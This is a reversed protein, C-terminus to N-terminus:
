NFYRKLKYRSTISFKSFISKLYFKVTNQSIYLQEGIEKNTLNKAALKAVEMERDTLQPIKNLLNSTRIKEIGNKYYNYLELIDKIENKYLEQQEIEKLISLIYEGNEVFPMYLRDPTAIQLASKISEIATKKESLKLNAVAMHIYTYVNSYINQFDSAVELFQESVGLLKLYEGNLLLTKGYIINAYSVTIFDFGDKEVNGGSSIWKPILEMQGINSFIFGECLDVARNFDYLKRCEKIMKLMANFKQFNGDIIAIRLMIFRACLYISYQKKSESMYIAKHCLIEAGRFDGRNLLIEAKMVAEAGYKHNNTLKYYYSICENMRELEEDLKGSERHFMYLISPSGYTWSEKLNIIKTQGDIMKYAKKIEESMLEIDNYATFVSLFTLEGMINIKEKESLMESNKINNEIEKKLIKVYDWEEYEFLIFAFVILMQPYKKKIESPCTQVIKLIIDKDKGTIDKTIDGTRLNMSFISDFDKIRYFILIAELYNNENQNWKGIRLIINNQLNTDLRNFKQKLYDILINQIYYVKKDSDYKIFINSNHIENIFDSVDTSDFIFKLKEITFSEFLCLKLFKKQTKESFKNNLVKEVLFYVNDACQFNQTEIYDLMQIYLVSIWGGCYKYLNIAESENLSIGCLKYYKEIESADFEFYAKTIHNLKKKLIMDLTNELSRNQTIIVIHMNKCLKEAIKRIFNNIIENQVFQLNDIVLITEESFDIDRFLIFFEELSIKDKPIDLQKIKLAIDKDIYSLSHCFKMWFDSMSNNDLIMWLVKADLKNLFEDAAVTKGYGCPAEMITLPYYIIDSLKYKLKDTFYLAKTNYKKSM